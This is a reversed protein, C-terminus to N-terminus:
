WTYSSVRGSGGQDSARLVSLTVWDRQRGRTQVWLGHCLSADTLVRDVEQRLAPQMGRVRRLMEDLSAFRDAERSALLDEVGRSGLVGEAAAKVVEDEARQVNVKGDGWCTVGGGALGQGFRDGVVEGPVVREFVQEWAVVEPAAGERMVVPRLAVRMGLRSAGALRRVVGSAAREGRDGVLRDVRAKAQEDTVVVAHDMGGLHCVVRVERVVRAGDRGEDREEREALIAEARSLVTARLSTVAWRRSLDEAADRAGLAAMGSRGAFGALMVGCMMVLVLVMVLAFGRRGDRGREVLGQRSMVAEM